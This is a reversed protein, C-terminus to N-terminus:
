GDVLDERVIEALDFVEERDVLLQFAFPGLHPAPTTGPLRPFCDPLCPFLIQFHMRLHPLIRFSLARTLGPCTSGIESVMGSCTGCDLSQHCSPNMGFDEVPKEKAM